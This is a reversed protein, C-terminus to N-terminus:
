CQSGHKKAPVGDESVSQIIKMANKGVMRYGYDYCYIYNGTRGSKKRHTCHLLSFGRLLLDQFPVVTEKAQHAYVTALIRRNKQLQCNIQRIYNSHDANLLNHYSSRCYDNCFKKDIRGKLEKSCHLCNKKILTM